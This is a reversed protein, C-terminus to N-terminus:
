IGFDARMKALQDLIEQKGAGPSDRFFQEWVSNWSEASPGTHIGDPKLRHTAKELAIKYDEINLGARDFFRKLKASESSLPCRNRDLASM